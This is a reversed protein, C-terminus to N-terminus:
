MIGKYLKLLESDELPFDSKQGCFYYASAADLTGPKNILYYDFYKLFFSTLHIIPYLPIRTKKSSFFSKIFYKYSWALAMGPGCVAGSEIESFNRFLRRHGLHTFRHFDYRGGHVQQMFPTEAYVLGDKKLVRYIEQVCRFPDLVHELVAQVVVGDFYENTFPINHSDLIFQTRPGFSIDSEYLIISPNEILPEMGEGIISGGLILVKPNSSYSLLKRAFNSYNEQAKINKGISPIFAVIAKKIPNKNVITTKFYTERMETFDSIRFVSNEENILVPINNIVPFIKKCDNNSCVLLADESKLIAMCKPCRLAKFIEESLKM